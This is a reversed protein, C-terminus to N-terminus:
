ASRNAMYIFCEREKVKKNKNNIGGKGAERTASFHLEEKNMVIWLSVLQMLELARLIVFGFRYLQFNEM